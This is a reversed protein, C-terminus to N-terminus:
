KIKKNWLFCRDFWSLQKIDSLQVELTKIQKRLEDNSKVHTEYLRVLTAVAENNANITPLDIRRNNETTNV